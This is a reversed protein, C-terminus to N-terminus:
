LCNKHLVARQHTKSFKCSTFVAGAGLGYMESIEHSLFAVCLLTVGICVAYGIAANRFLRSMFEHMKMRHIDVDRLSDRHYSIAHTTCVVAGIFVTAQFSWIYWVIATYLALTVSVWFMAQDYKNDWNWKLM